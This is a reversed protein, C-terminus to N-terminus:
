AVIDASAFRQMNDRYPYRVPPVEHKRSGYQKVSKNTRAGVHAGISIEGATTIPVVPM